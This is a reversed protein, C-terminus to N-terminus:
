WTWSADAVSRPIDGVGAGPRFPYISFAAPYLEHHAPDVGADLSAHGVGKRLIVAEVEHVTDVIKALADHARPVECELWVLRVLRLLVPAKVSSPVTM